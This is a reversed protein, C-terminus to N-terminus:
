VYHVRSAVDDNQMPTSTEGAAPEDVREYFLVYSSTSQPLLPAQTLPRDSLRPTSPDAPCPGHGAIYQLRVARPLSGASVAVSARSAPSVRSDDFDYWESGERCYATYHGCGYGGMHNSVAILDYVARKGDPQLVYKTMDLGELPFDVMTTLKSRSYSNYSFRKLQIVLMQPVSWVEMKKEAQKEEKCHPCRWMDTQSLKEAKTFQKMCDDLSVCAAAATSASVSPDRSHLLDADRDYARAKIDSPWTLGLFQGNRLPKDGIVTATDAGYSDCLHLSFGTMDVDGDAGMPPAAAAADGANEAFAAELEADSDVAIRPLADKKSCRLLKAGIVSKLADETMDAPVRVMMPVGFPTHSVRSSSRQSYSHHYSSRYVSETRHYVVVAVENADPEESPPPLEFAYQKPFSLSLPHTCRPQLAVALWM